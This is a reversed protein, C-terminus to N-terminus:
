NCLKNWQKMNRTRLKKERKRKDAPKEYRQKDKYDALTGSQEFAKSFRRLAKEFSEKTRVKIHVM